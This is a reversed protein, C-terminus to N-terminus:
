SLASSGGYNLIFCRERIVASAPQMRHSLKATLSGSKIKMWGDMWGVDLVLTVPSSGIRKVGILLSQAHCYSLGVHVNTHHTYQYISLHWNM